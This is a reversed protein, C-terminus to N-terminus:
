RALHWSHIWTSDRFISSRSQSCSLVRRIAPIGACIPSIIWSVKSTISVISRRLHPRRRFLLKFQAGRELKARDADSSLLMNGSADLTALARFMDDRLLHSVQDKPIGASVMANYGWINAFAEDQLHADSYQSLYQNLQDSSLNGRVYSTLLSSEKQDLVNSNAAHGLEHGIVAIMWNFSLKADWTPDQSVGKSRFYEDQLNITNATRSYYIGGTDIGETADTTSVFHGGRAAFDLVAQKMYDSSNIVRLFVQFQADNKVYFAPFAFVAENGTFNAIAM